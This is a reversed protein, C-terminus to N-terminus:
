AVAQFGGRVLCLKRHQRISDLEKQVNNNRSLVDMVSYHWSATRERVGADHCRKIAQVVLFSCKINTIKNSKINVKDAWLTPNYM